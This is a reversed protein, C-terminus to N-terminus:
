RDLPVALFRRDPGEFGFPSSAIIALRSGGSAAASVIAYIGYDLTCGRSKPLTDGDAHVTRTGEPTTFRLTYGVIPTEASAVGACMESPKAVPTTTLTVTFKDGDDADAGCCGPTWFGVSRRDGHEGDGNLALIQVPWGIDLQRLKDDAKALAERRVQSLPRAEPDDDRTADVSFPVGYVWKDAALDVVYISSFAAGSGDHIGYEEFAFYSGAQDYGLFAIEARDAAVAPAVLAALCTVLSAALRASAGLVVNRLM